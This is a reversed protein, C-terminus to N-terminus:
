TEGEKNIVQAMGDVKVRESIVKVYEPLISVECVSQIAKKLSNEMHEPIYASIRKSTRKDVKTM